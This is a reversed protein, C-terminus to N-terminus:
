LNNALQEVERRLGSLGADLRKYLSLAEQDRGALCAQELMDALETLAEAGLMGLSGKLRHAAAGVMPLDVPALNASRYERVVSPSEELYLRCIDRAM